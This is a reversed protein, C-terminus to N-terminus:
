GILGTSPNMGYMVNLNQVAAWSAGKGLNDIASTIVIRDGSEDAALHVRNSSAVDATAPSQDVVKVFSGAFVSRWKARIHEPTTAKPRVYITSLIGRFMPVLHPTFIVKTSVSAIRKLLDEIEPRHRHTGIAYAKMSENTEGYLTALKASRGAGSVGSKSDIIIDDAEILQDSLLPALPLIASTPYCGPNAVLDAKAIEDAFFEPMGYPVSAIREPCPHTVDYTREYLSLDSLRFDASFDVVRLGVNLLQDVTEASAAHPLCVFAADVRESLRHSDFAELTIDTWEGLSPHVAALPKGHDGRSTVAVLDISPHRIALRAAELATYGTAGIIALRVRSDNM